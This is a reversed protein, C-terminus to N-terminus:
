NKCAPHGEQQGVLMTLAGFADSSEFLPTLRTAKLQGMNSSQQMQRIDECEMLQTTACWEGLASGSYLLFVAATNRTDDM